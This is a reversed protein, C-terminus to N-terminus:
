VPNKGNVNKGRIKLWSKSMCKSKVFPRLNVKGLGSSMNQQFFYKEEDTNERKKKKQFIGTNM